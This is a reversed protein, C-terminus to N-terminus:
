AYAPPLFTDFVDGAILVLSIEERKCIDEIEDLVEEQEKLRERDFLRKGLHLDSTHLINM